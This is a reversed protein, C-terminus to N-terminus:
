LFAMYADSCSELMYNAFLECEEPVFPDDASVLCVFPKRIKHVKNANKCAKYYDDLCSFGFLPATVLTDFESVVKAQVPPVPSSTALEVIVGVNMILDIDM